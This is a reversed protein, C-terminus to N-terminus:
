HSILAYLSLKLPSLSKSSFYKLLVYRLTLLHVRLGAPTCAGADTSRIGKLKLQLHHFNSARTWCRTDLPLSCWSRYVTHGQHHMRRWRKMLRVESSPCFTLNIKQSWQKIEEDSPSPPQPHTYTHSYTQTHVPPSPPLPSFTHTDSLVHSIGYLPKQTNDRSYVDDNLTYSHTLIHAHWVGLM